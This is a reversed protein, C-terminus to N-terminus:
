LRSDSSHKREFVTKKKGKIVLMQKLLHLRWGGLRGEEDNGNLKQAFSFNSVFYGLEAQRATLISVWDCWAACEGSWCSFYVSTEAETPQKVM